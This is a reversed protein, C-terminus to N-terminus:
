CAPMSSNTATTPARSCPSDWDPTLRTGLAPSQLILMRATNDRIRDNSVMIPASHLDRLHRSLSYPGTNAYGAFGCISMARGVVSLCADSIGTKLGSIEATGAFSTAAGNSQFSALASRLRAEAMQLTEVAQMLRTAGPPASSTAGPEAKRLKARLFARAREVADAAIGTWVCCWLLHSVPLMTESAIQAFPVPLIQEAGGRARVIFSETCTGRMGMADWAGTRELEAQGRPAVALVQNSADADPQARATILLADAYAGYSVATARKELTYDERDTTIACISTRMSGGVQEESTVSALLLGESAIRELFRRHWGSQMAHQVLCAVQIQHMAFVMASSSCAKGLAYCVGAIDSFAAGPGGCSAPVFAALLRESRMADVAEQPFRGNRDVSEAHVRAISAARDGAQAAMWTETAPSADRPSPAALYTLRTRGAPLSHDSAVDGADRFLASNLLSDPFEVDFTEEIALMVNVVALSDLGAAFLDDDDGLPETPALRGHTIVLQRLQDLM